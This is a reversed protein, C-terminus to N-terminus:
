DQTRVQRFSEPFPMTVSNQFFLGQLEHAHSTRFSNPRKILMSSWFIQTDWAPNTKLGTETSSKFMVSIGSLDWEDAPCVNVHLRAKLCRYLPTSPVTDTSLDLNPSMFSLILRRKAGSFYSHLRLQSSLELESRRITCAMSCPIYPSLSSPSFPVGFKRSVSGFSLCGPIRFV